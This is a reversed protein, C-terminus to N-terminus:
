IWRGKEDRPFKKSDESFAKRMEKTWIVKHSRCFPFYEEPIRKLDKPLCELPTNIMGEKILYVLVRKTTKFQPQEDFYQDRREGISRYSMGSIIGKKKIPQKFMRRKLISKKEMNEPYDYEFHVIAKTEVWDGIKFKLKM